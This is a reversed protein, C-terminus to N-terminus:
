GVIVVREKEQGPASPVLREFILPSLAATVIALLIMASHTSANLLGLRFGIEAAAVALSLGPTVVVGLALAEKLGYRKAFITAPLVKIVYAAIIISLALLLAEPRAILAAVDFEAGVMIFFVPVLFGFGIADLKLHLSTEDSQSILSVIAGALFAGLIVEIGLTESLFAFIFILMFAGRVGIQSTAHALESMLPSPGFRRGGLYVLFVAVFLLGILALQAPDGGAVLAVLAALLLMTTVDMALAIILITQGYETAGLQKEKLTALTLGVSVTALILAILWPNSVLGFHSFLFGIAVGGALVLVLYAGSLVFARRGAKARALRGLLAFDIEVGSLFMLYTIGLLSLFELWPDPRVINLGSKGLAIGVILEGVVVPIRFRKVNRLLLPIAFAATAVIVLSAFSVSHEQM